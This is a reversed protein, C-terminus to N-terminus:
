RNLVHLHVAGTDLLANDEDPPGLGGVAGDDLPTGVAIFDDTATLGLGFADCADTNPAKFLCAAHDISGDDRRRYLYVAGSSDYQRSTAAADAATQIGKGGGRSIPAGVALFGPRLAIVWGFTASADEHAELCDSFTWKGGVLKYIHVVGKMNAAGANKCGAANPAGVALTDGQLSLAAGAAGGPLMPLTLQQPTPDVEGGSRRFAYVAGVGDGTLSEIPAGVIIWGSSIQVSAGFAAGAQPTLATLRALRRPEDGTVDYVYATGAAGDARPEGPAGVVLVGYLLAVAAGFLDGAGISPERFAPASEGDAWGGGDRRLVHIAGSYQDVGAVGVAMREGSVAAHITTFNGFELVGVLHEPPVLPANHDLSSLTLHQESWADGQREFARVAGAGIRDDPAPLPAAPNCLDTPQPNAAFQDLSPMELPATVVLTDGDSALSEGFWASRLPRAAKLSLWSGSVLGCAASVAGSTAEVHTSGDPADFGAEGSRLFATCGGVSGCGVVSAIVFRVAWISAPGLWPRKTSERTTDAV